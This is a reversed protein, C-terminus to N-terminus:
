KYNKIFKEVDKAKVSVLKEFFDLTPPYGLKKTVQDYMHMWLRLTMVVYNGARHASPPKKLKLHDLIEGLKHSPSDPVLRRSLLLTCLYPIFPETQAAIPSEAKGIINKVEFTPQTSVSDDTIVHQLARILPVNNRKM